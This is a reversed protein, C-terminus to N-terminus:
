FFILNLYFFVTNFPFWPRKDKSYCNCIALKHLYNKHKPCHLFFRRYWISRPTSLSYVLKDSNINLLVIFVLFLLYFAWNTNGFDIFQKVSLPSPNFHSYHELMRMLNRSNATLRMKKELIPILLNNYLSTMAHFKDTFSCCKTIFGRFFDENGRCM